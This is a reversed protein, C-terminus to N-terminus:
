VGRGTDALQTIPNGGMLYVMKIDVPYGGQKGELIADWVKTNHVRASSPNPANPHPLCNKHPETGEMVPNKGVPLGGVSPTSPYAWEWGAANGGHIGVNGTM